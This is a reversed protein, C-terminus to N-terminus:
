PSHAHDHTFIRFFLVLLDFNYYCRADTPIYAPDVVITALSLVCRQAITLGKLHERGFKVHIFDFINSDPQWQTERDVNM